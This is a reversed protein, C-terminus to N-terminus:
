LGLVLGETSSCSSCVQYWISAAVFAWFFGIHLFVNSISWNLTCFSTFLRTQAAQLLDKHPICVRHIYFQNDFLGWWHQMLQLQMVQKYWRVAMIRGFLPLSATILSNKMDCKLCLWPISTTAYPSIKAIYQDTTPLKLWESLRKPSNGGSFVPGCFGKSIM